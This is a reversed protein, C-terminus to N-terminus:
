FPPPLILGRRRWEVFISEYTGGGSAGYYRKLQPNPSNLDRWLTGEHLRVAVLIDCCRWRPMVAWAMGNCGLARPIVVPATGYNYLVVLTRNPQHHCCRPLWVALIQPRTPTVLGDVLEAANPLWVKSHKAVMLKCQQRDSVRSCSPRGNRIRRILGAGKM